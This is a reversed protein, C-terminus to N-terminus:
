SPSNSSKRGSSTGPLDLEKEIGSSSFLLDVVIGDESEEPPILRATALRGADNQEVLQFLTYGQQQLRFVLHEAEYDSDVAIAVDIDRTFRPEARASGALGGIIAWDMGFEDLQLAIRELVQQLRSMM